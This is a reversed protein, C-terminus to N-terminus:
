LYVIYKNLWERMEEYALEALKEKEKGVGEQKNWETKKENAVRINVAAM